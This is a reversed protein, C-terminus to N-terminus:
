HRIFILLALQFVPPQEGSKLITDLVVMAQEETMPKTQEPGTCVRAQAELVTRNPRPIDSSRYSTSIAPNPPDADLLGTLDIRESYLAEPVRRGGGISVGSRRDRPRISIWSRSNSATRKKTFSFLNPNPNPNPALLSNMIASIQSVRTLQRRHHNRLRLCPFPDGNIYLLPTAVTVNSDLPGDMFPISFSVVHRTLM